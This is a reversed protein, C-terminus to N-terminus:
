ITQPPKSNAVFLTLISAGVQIRMALNGMKFDTYPSRLLNAKSRYILCLWLVFWCSGFFLIFAITLQTIPNVQCDFRLTTCDM